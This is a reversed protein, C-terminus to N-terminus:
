MGHTKCSSPLGADRKAAAGPHLHDNSRHGLEAHDDTGKPLSRCLVWRPCRHHVGRRHLPGQTHAGCLLLAASGLTLHLQPKHLFSEGKVSHGFIPMAKQSAIKMHLESSPDLVERSTTLESCTAAAYSASFACSRAQDAIMQTGPNCLKPSRPSQNAWDPEGGEWVRCTAQGAGVMMSEKAEM